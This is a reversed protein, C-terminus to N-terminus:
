YFNSIQIDKIQLSDYNQFPFVAHKLLLYIVYKGIESSAILINWAIYSIFVDLSLRSSSCPFNHTPPNGPEFWKQAKPRLISRNQHSLSIALKKKKFRWTM